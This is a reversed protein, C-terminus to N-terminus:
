ILIEVRDTMSKLLDKIYGRDGESIKYGTGFCDFHDTLPADDVVTAAYGPYKFLLDL